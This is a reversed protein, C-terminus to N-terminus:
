PLAQQTSPSPRLVQGRPRRQRHPRVIPIPGNPSVSPDSGSELRRRDGVSDSASIASAVALTPIREIELIVWDGKLGSSIRSVARARKRDGRRTARIVNVGLADGYELPRM